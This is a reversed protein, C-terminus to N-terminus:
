FTFSYNSNEYFIFYYSYYCNCIGYSFICYIYNFLKM